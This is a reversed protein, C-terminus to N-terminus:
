STLSCSPGVIDFDAIFLMNSVIDVETDQKSEAAICPQKQRCVM